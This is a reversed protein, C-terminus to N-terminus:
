TNLQTLLNEISSSCTWYAFRYNTSLRRIKRTVKVNVTTERLDILKKLQTKIKNSQSEGIDSQLLGFFSALEDENSLELDITAKANEADELIIKIPALKCFRKRIVRWSGLYLVGKVKVSRLNFTDNEDISELSFLEKMTVDDKVTVSELFLQTAENWLSNGDAEAITMISDDDAINSAPVAKGDEPSQTNPVLIENQPEEKLSLQSDAAVPRFLLAAGLPRATLPKSTPASPPPMTGPESEEKVKNEANLKSDRPITKPFLGLVFDTSLKELDPEQTLQTDFNVKQSDPAKKNFLLKSAAGGDDLRPKKRAGMQSEVEIYNKQKDRNRIEFSGFDYSARFEKYAGGLPGCFERMRDLMNLFQFELGDFVKGINEKDVLKIRNFFGEMYKRSKVKLDFCYRALVCGHEQLVTSEAMAQVLREYEDTQISTNFLMDRSLEQTGFGYVSEVISNPVRGGQMTTRSSIKSFDTFVIIGAPAGPWHKLDLILIPIDYRYTGILKTSDHPDRIDEVQPVSSLPENSSIIQPGAVVNTPIIKSSLTHTM